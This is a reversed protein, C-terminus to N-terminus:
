QGDQELRRQRDEQEMRARVGGEVGTGSPMPEFLSGATPPAPPAKNFQANQIVDAGIRNALGPWLQAGLVGGAAKWGVPYEGRWPHIAAWVISDVTEWPGDMTSMRTAHGTYNAAHVYFPTDVAWPEVTVIKIARAGSLRLEQNLAADLAIIAAKTAAYSAHYALPVHGEVSAVNVLTGYGQKRFQLLAAHSGYIYGKLNVDVVRAHDEVPVADFRGIAAVAADNVWADIRGFRGVAAAALREVEDPQSVDTTVVLAQGGAAQAEAAVEDLVATRRAALVVNGGYAALKFAVGRGLGSSAGTVVFTRGAIRARGDQGLQSPAACGALLSAWLMAAVLLPM